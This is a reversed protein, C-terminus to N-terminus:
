YSGVNFLPRPPNANPFLIYIQPMRGLVKSFSQLLFVTVNFFPINLADYHSIQLTEIYRQVTKFKCTPRMQDYRVKM